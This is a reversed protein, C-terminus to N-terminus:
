NLFKLKLSYFVFSRICSINAMIISRSSEKGIIGLIHHGKIHSYYTHRAVNMNLYSVNKIRRTVFKYNIKSRNKSDSLASVSFWDVGQINRIVAECNDILYALVLGM